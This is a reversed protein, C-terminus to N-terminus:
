RHTLGRAFKLVSVKVKSEDQVPQTSVSEIPSFRFLPYFSFLAQAPRLHHPAEYFVGRKAADLDRRVVCRVKKRLCHCSVLVSNGSSFSPQYTARATGPEAICRAVVCRQLHSARGEDEFVEIDAQVPALSGDFYMKASLKPDAAIRITHQRSAFQPM